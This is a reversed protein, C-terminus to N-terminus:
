YKNLHDALMTDYQKLTETMYETGCQNICEMDKEDRCKDTCDELQKSQKMVKVTLERQLVEM